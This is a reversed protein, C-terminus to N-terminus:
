ENDKPTNDGLLAGSGDYLEITASGGNWDPDMNEVTALLYEVDVPYDAYVDQTKYKEVEKLAEKETEAEVTFRQRCWVVVKVDQYFDFKAM